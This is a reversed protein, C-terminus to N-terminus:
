ESSCYAVSTVFEGILGGILFFGIQVLLLIIGFAFLKRNSLTELVVGAMMLEEIRNEEVGRLCLCAARKTLHQAGCVPVCRSLLYTLKITEAPCVCAIGRV